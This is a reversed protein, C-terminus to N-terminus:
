LTLLSKFHVFYVSHLQKLIKISLKQIYKLSFNLRTFIDECFLKTTRNLKIWHLHSNRLYYFENSVKLFDNTENSITEVYRSNCISCVQPKGFCDCTSLVASAKVGKDLDSSKNKALLARKALLVRRPSKVRRSFTSNELEPTVYSQSKKVAGIKQM